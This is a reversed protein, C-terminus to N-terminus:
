NNNGGVKKSIFVMLLRKQGIKSPTEIAKFPM